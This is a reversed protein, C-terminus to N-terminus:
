RLSARRGTKTHITAQQVTTESSINLINMDSNTYIRNFTLNYMRMLTTLSHTGVSAAQQGTYASVKETERVLKQVGHKQDHRIRHDELFSQLLSAAFEKRKDSQVWEPTTGTENTLLKITKILSQAVKFPISM